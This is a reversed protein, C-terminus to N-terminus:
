KIVEMGVAKGDPGRVIRKPASILDAVNKMVQTNDNQNKLMEQMTGISHDHSQMVQQHSNNVTNMMAEIMGRLDQNLAAHMQQQADMDEPLMSASHSIQAVRIKTNADLEAKFREMQQERELKASELQANFQLQQAEAQLKAQQLQADFQARAQAVQMDAQVRMQESQQQAQLKIMEPDPKPQQPQAMKEKIQDLAQDIVGELQQSSKFASVGFKMVEMLVPTMEPSAQAVPMAQKLFGAFAGIFETRERKIAAEDLQVLSDAAVEIRFNRLPKDKILALAQPILQQDVPQMQSAGAYMTITQPQFKTCIIQAKLRILDSAFLAVEEQMSRLRLSAFQGKIQQATATESAQSAGRLIDSLGTIEYIQQKIEQRARYCQLLANALTDLPLLDIAGKLGGKESFAMWKDVPILTNNDGETLLRQLAPVSSDYVGRVRLSKVLGDIRDSLIDLENAQDQYLVFDPVPVLSDSTMTAYLPKCCPFFQELELPDDRVDIFKNGQKSFWYVKATEKDWLECIKARTYERQNSAYNSLPDPGSDLPINRAADEGFREVLADKTMYVWRWVQTVEEWTRAVSHGFDAWHVYDTPACEYEIQEMPEVQGATYDKTEAEDADETVQLGDDPTEPMGPVQVVHPEYRVWAVGRGGLFRDEVAYRMTSRFDTYHEIEFDLAREVLISAVRGVPDNDGFRRSVDAKPMKSYVAPILTQVNSWLINFKATDNGSASRTDDRYRRIIKKTRAEWKKFENDYTAILTNYKDVETPVLEAMTTEKLFQKQRPEPM